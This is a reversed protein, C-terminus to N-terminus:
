VGGSTDGVQRVPARFESAGSAVQHHRITSTDTGEPTTDRPGVDNLPVSGRRNM